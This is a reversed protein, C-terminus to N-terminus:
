GPDGKACSRCIAVGDQFSELYLAIVSVAPDKAFHKWFNRNTLTWEIASTSPGTFGLIGMGALDNLILSLFAGSQSIIAVPGPQPLIIEDSSLFFSNFHDPASFVGLGNPGIVRVGFKEAEKMLDRQFRTRGRKGIEAFGGSIVILHHIGRKALPEVM